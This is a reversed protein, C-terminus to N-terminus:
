AIFWILLATLAGVVTAAFNVQDNRLWNLGRVQQTTTGCAHEPSQETESNCDPCLFIAQITAGLLSDVTSGIVGAFLAVPLIRWDSTLAWGLAGILGSGGLIAFYGLLSVAGSTGREVREGTTILRPRRRSLIGIETAWTDATAVAIAGVFGALWLNDQTLGYAVAFLVAVGGNAFVQGLDRKGSKSFMGAFRRKRSRGLGSLLSSSLFFAILLAALPIGGFGFTLGGVLFAGIAGDLTLAGAAYAVAAVVIGLIGGLLLQLGEIGLLIDWGTSLKRTEQPYGRLDQQNFWAILDGRAAAVGGGLATRRGSDANGM